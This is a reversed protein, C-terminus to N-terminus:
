GRGGANRKGSSYLLFGTPFLTVGLVASTLDVYHGVSHAEGWRMSPFLHLAEFVHALAVVVLCGAGVLQLFSPVTKGRLFVVVSGCFLMGAPLFAILSKALTATM